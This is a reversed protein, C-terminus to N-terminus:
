FNKLINEKIWERAIGTKLYKERRFASKYNDFEEFYILTLPRRSKTSKVKGKLHQNFYRDNLDKSSGIYIGNDKESKLIYTFAHAASKKLKELINM